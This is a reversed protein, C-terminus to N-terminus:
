GCLLSLECCLCALLAAGKSCRANGTANSAPSSLFAASWWGLQHSGERTFIVQRKWLSRALCRRVQWAHAAPPQHPRALQPRAIPRHKINWSDARAGPTRSPSGLMATPCYLHGSRAALCPMASPIRYRWSCAAGLLAVHPLNFIATLSCSAKSFRCSPTCYSTIYILCTM